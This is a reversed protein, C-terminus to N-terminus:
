ADEIGLEKVKVSLVMGLAGLVESLIKVTPNGKGSEIDSVTHVAVGSIEALNRQDIKLLARRRKITDGLKVMNM